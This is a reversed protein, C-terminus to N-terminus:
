PGANRLLITKIEAVDSQIAQQTANIKGLERAADKQHENLDDEVADVRAGSDAGMAAIERAVDDKTPRHEIASEITAIRAGATLAYVVGQVAGGLVLGLFTGLAIWTGLKKWLEKAETPM